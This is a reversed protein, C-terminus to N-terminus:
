YKDTVKPAQYADKKTEKEPLSTEHLEVLLLVNFIRKIFKALWLYKKERVVIVKQM